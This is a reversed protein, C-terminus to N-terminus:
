NKFNKSDHRDLKLSTDNNLSPLSTSIEKHDEFESYESVTIDVLTHFSELSILYDNLM